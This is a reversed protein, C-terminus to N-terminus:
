HQFKQMDQDQVPSTCCSWSSHVSTYADAIGHGSFLMEGMEERDRMSVSKIFVKKKVTNELNQVPLTSLRTREAASYEWMHTVINKFVMKKMCYIKIM